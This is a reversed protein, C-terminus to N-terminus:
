ADKKVSLIMSTSNGNNAEFEFSVSSLSDVVHCGGRDRIVLGYCDPFGCGNRFFRCRDFAIVRLWVPVKSLIESAMM